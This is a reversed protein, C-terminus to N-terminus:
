NKRARTRTIQPYQRDGQKARTNCSSSGILDLYWVCESLEGNAGLGMLARLKLSGEAGLRAKVSFAWLISAPM